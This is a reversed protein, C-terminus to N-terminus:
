YRVGRVAKPKPAMPSNLKHRFAFRILEATGTVKLKKLINARYTDVTKCSIELEKAIDRPRMGAVLFGFVESERASLEALPQGSENGQISLLNTFIPSVFPKGALVSDFADLLEAAPASKAVYANAGASFAETIRSDDSGISLLIVRTNCESKRVLRVVDLASLRPLHLDLIALDPRRELIERLAEPGDSCEAVIQVKIRERLLASIGQRVIAHDDAIVVSFERGTFGHLADM